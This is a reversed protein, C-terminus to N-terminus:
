MKVFRKRVVGENSNVEMSYVGSRLQNINVEAKFPQTFIKRGDVDYVTISVPQINETKIFLQTTAPNPYLIISYNATIPIGTISDNLTNIVANTPVPQNFDFYIATKNHIQTGEPLNAIPKIYFSVAGNSGLLDDSSDPLYAPDFLFILVNDDLQYHVTM